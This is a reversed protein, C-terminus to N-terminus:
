VKLDLFDSLDGRPPISLKKRISPLYRTYDKHYALEQTYDKRSEEIMAAECPFLTFTKISPRKIAFASENAM